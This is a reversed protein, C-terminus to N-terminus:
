RHQFETTLDVAHDSTSWTWQSAGNTSHDFWLGGDWNIQYYLQYSNSSLDVCRWGQWDTFDHPTNTTLLYLPFLNTTSKPYSGHDDRFREFAERLPRSGDAFARLKQLDGSNSPDYDPGYTRVGFWHLLGSCVGALILVCLISIIAKRMLLKHM